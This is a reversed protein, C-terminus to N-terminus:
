KVWSGPRRVAKAASISATALELDVRLENGLAQPEVRKMSPEVSRISNANRGASQLADEFTVRFPRYSPSGANAINQATALSRMTLGDLAKNIMLASLPDM